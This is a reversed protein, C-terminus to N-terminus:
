PPVAMVEAPIRVRGVLVQNAAEVPPVMKVM